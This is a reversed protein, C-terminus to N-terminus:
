PVSPGGPAAGRVRALVADAARRGSVLAGQSSATDRHDGAVFLGDGLAVARRPDLPPAMATLAHAIAHETVLEWRATSVGYVHALQRRVGAESTADAPDASPLGLMTSAVLARGDPSYARAANSLVVTNVLPGRRDADLHLAGYRSPADACAHWFTTLPRVEPVALGTLGAAAGPDTAVVVARATVTGDGTRVTLEAGPGTAVADVRTGCRVAGAPLAAALQDPIAQMGAAPVSPRGRVFSRILLEVFRRSTVGDAEGLVGALFPDLVGRRLGDAVGRRDLADGWPEDPAALLDAPRRLACGIAWRAFAAKEGLGGAATLDGLLAAPLLGAPTRRPDGLVRRGSGSAVVVAGPLPQLDLVALDLVRRAEPYATNLLQFGRDCRFGDVVDTRVRGGVAEARELVLVDLGARALRLACALGALGAGVVVVDCRGPLPAPGAPPVPGVPPSAM